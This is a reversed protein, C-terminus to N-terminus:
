KRKKTEIREKYQANKKIKRKTLRYWWHHRSILECEPCRIMDPDDIWGPETDDWNYQFVAGCHPCKKQYVPDEKKAPERDKPKIVLVAM